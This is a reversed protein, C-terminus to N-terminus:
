SRQLSREARLAPTRDCAPKGASRDVLLVRDHDPRVPQEHPDDHPPATAFFDGRLDPVLFFPTARGLAVM